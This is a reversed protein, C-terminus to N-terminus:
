ITHYAVSRITIRCLIYRCEDRGLIAKFQTGQGVGAPIRIRYGRRRQDVTIAVFRETGHQAQEPTLFIEYIQGIQVDNFTTNQGFGCQKRGCGNGRGVFWYGGAMSKDFRGHIDSMMTRPDYLRDYDKRKQSDGLISYAENIQKFKEESAPDGPHHDPHYELALRRYAHRIESASANSTVNLIYYYDRRIM